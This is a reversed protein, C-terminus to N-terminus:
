LGLVTKTKNLWTARSTNEDITTKQIFSHSDATFGNKRNSSQIVGNAHLVAITNEYIVKCRGIDEKSLGSDFSDIEVRVRGYQSLTGREPICAVVVSYGEPSTLVISIPDRMDAENIYQERFSWNNDNRHLIDFIRAAHEVCEFHLQRENDSITKCASCQREIENLEALLVGIAEFDLTDVYEDMRSSADDLRESISEYLERSWYDAGHTDEYEVDDEFAILRKENSCLAKLRAKLRKLLGLAEQSVRLYSTHYFELHGLMNVAEPLRTQAVGIAAEYYGQNIDDAVTGLSTRLVIFGPQLVDPFLLEYKEPHLKAIQAIVDDLQKYYCLAQKKATDIQEIIKKFEGDVRKELASIQKNVEDLESSNTEALRRVDDLMKRTAIAQKGLQKGIEERLEDLDDQLVGSADNIRREILQSADMRLGNEGKELQILRARESLVARDAADRASGSQAAKAKMSNYTDRNVVAM